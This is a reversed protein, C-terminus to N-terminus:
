PVRRTWGSGLILDVVLLALGGAAWPAYEEHYLTRISGVVPSKELADIERFVGALMGTDTARFARGGGAEALRALGVLDPGESESESEPEPKSPDGLGPEGTRGIAITHLTAGLERALTAAAVPDIPRPVSPANRGDTLLILM